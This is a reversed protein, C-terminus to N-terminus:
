DDTDTDSASGFLIDYTTGLAKNNEIADVINSMITAQVGATQIPIIVTWWNYWKREDIWRSYIDDFYLFGQTTTLDPDDYFGYQENEIMFATDNNLVANIFAALQVEGVPLSLINSLRTGYPRDTEGSKRPASREDGLLDIVPAISDGFFTSAQADDTDQQIQQFMGAMAYFFAKAVIGSEKGHDVFHLSPVWKTVKANWQDITLAM